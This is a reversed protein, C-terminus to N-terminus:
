EWRFSLATALPAGVAWLALVLWDHGPVGGGTGMAARLAGALASAPLAEALSRLGSPLKSLPFLMGGLLLLVLWLGNALALVLDARLRGAMLLGIGAFGATAAVSAALAAFSAAVADGARPRWGLGIGAGIIVAAQVVEVIVVAAVKAVVLRPRGLPTAGLRKLVQYEREFATAIGVSVMSTSMIALALVGPVLYSARDSPAPLVKTLALFLLLAVPIGLTLLLSEGRRLTMRTEAAAQAALAKV